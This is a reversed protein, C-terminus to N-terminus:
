KIEKIIHISQKPLWGEWHYTLDQNSKYDFGNGVIKVMKGLLQIVECKYYSEKPIIGNNWQTHLTFNQPPNTIYPEVRVLYCKHLELDQSLIQGSKPILIQTTSEDFVPINAIKLQKLQESIIPNM